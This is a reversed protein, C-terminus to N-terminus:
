NVFEELINNVKFTPSKFLSKQALNIIEQSFLQNLIQWRGEKFTKVLRNDYVCFLQYRGEQDRCFLYIIKELKSILIHNVKLKQLSLM